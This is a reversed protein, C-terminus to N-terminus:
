KITKNLSDIMQVANNWTVEKSLRITYDPGNEVNANIAPIGESQGQLEYKVVKKTLTIFYIALGIFTSLVLMLFYLWSKQMTDM